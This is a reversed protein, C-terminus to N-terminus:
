FLKFRMNKCMQTKENKFFMADRLIIYKPLINFLHQVFKNTKCNLVQM